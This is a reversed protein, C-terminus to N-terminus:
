LLLRAVFFRLMSLHALATGFAPHSWYKEQESILDKLQSTSGETNM